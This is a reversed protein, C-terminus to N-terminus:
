GYAMTELVADLCGLSERIIEGTHAASVFNYANWKVLLGHEACRRAAQAGTAADAFELYCFEPIGRVGHVLTPVRAAIEQFGSLLVGGLAALRAAIDDYAFADLVALAAALSVYETALTSSIWTRRAADMLATAGGVAAIPFGNGLAKGWVVLDPEFGYREAAGGPGLRLGTKIEDAILVAGARTAERRLADLWERTPPADVVPEIVVAAVPAGDLADALATVDNFPVSTRLNRVCEPVGSADSTLDLWGHYGCTVIRDRGTHVRAMRVAAAVAEAGTKLFRVAEVGPMLAVLREALEAEHRPALSGVTGDRVAREAAATVGPHAYGLSVAGLAMILDIYERGDEDRIRCGEGRVM